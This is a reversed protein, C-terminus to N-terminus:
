PSELYSKIFSFTAQQRVKDDTSFLDKAGPLSSKGILDKDEESFADFNAHHSMSENVLLRSRACINRM